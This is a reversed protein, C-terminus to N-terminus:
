LNYCILISQMRHVGDIFKNDSVLIYLRGHQFYFDEINRDLSFEKVNIFQKDNFVALTKQNQNFFFLKNKFEYYNEQLVSQTNKSLLFENKRHYMFITDDDAFANKFLEFNSSVFVLEK